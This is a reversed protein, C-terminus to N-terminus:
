RMVEWTYAVNYPKANRAWGWGALKCTYRAQRYDREALIRTRTATQKDDDTSAKDAYTMEAQYEANQYQSKAAMFAAEANRMEQTIEHYQM